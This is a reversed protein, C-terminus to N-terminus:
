GEEAVMARAIMVLGVVYLGGPVFYFQSGAAAFAGFFYSIASLAGAAAIVAVGLSLQKLIALREDPVEVRALRSRVALACLLLTVAVVAGCVTKVGNSGSQGPEVVVSVLAVGAIPLVALACVVVALQWTVRINNLDQLRSVETSLSGAATV